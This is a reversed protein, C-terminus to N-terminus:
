RKKERRSFAGFGVASNEKLRALEPELSEGAQNGREEGV